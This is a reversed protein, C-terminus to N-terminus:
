DIGVLPICRPYHAPYIPMWPGDKYTYCDWMGIAPSGWLGPTSGGQLRLLRHETRPVPVPPGPQSSVQHPPARVTRVQGFPTDGPVTCQETSASVNKKHHPPPDDEDHRRNHHRNTTATTANPPILRVARGVVELFLVHLDAYSLFLDPVATLWPMRTSTSSPPLSHAWKLHLCIDPMPSATITPERVVMPKLAQRSLDPDGKAAESTSSPGGSRMAPTTTFSITSSPTSTRKMHQDSVSDSSTTHFSM